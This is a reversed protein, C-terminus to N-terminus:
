MQQFLRLAISIEVIQYSRDGMQWFCPILAGLACMTQYKVMQCNVLMKKYKYQFGGKQCEFRDFFCFNSIFFISPLFLNGRNKNQIYTKQKHIQKHTQTYTQRHVNQLSWQKVYSASITVYIGIHSYKLIIDKVKKM